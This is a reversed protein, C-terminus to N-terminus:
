VPLATDYGFFEFDIKFTDRVLRTIEADYYASLKEDAKIQGKRVNELKAHDFFRDLIRHFQTEFDEFKVFEDYKIRDCFINHYQVRWHPNMDAAKQRSVHRVFEAFGVHADIKLERAFQKTKKTQKQFKNLYSSLLRSYPNRVVAFEFPVCDNMEEVRALGLDSPQLLPALWRNTDVFNASLPRPSALAQLTRRATNSGCKENKTYLFRGRRIM